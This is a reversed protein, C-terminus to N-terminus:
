RQPQCFMPRRLELRQHLEHEVRGLGHKRNPTRLLTHKVVIGVHGNQPPMVGTQIPREQVNPALNSAIYLGDHRLSVRTLGNVHVVNLQHHVAVPMSFFRMERKKVRRHTAILTFHRPNKASAGLDRLLHKGFPLAGGLEVAQTFHKGRRWTTHCHQAPGFVTKLQGVGGVQLENGVTVDNAQRKTGGQWLQLALPKFRQQVPNVARALGVGALRHWDAQHSFQTRRRLLPKQVKNVLRHTAAIPPHIADENFPHIHGIHDDLGLHQAFAFLFKAGEGLQGGVVHPGRSGM